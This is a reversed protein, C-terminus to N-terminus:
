REFRFKQMICIYGYYCSHKDFMSISAARQKAYLM